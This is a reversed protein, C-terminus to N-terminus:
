HIKPKVPDGAVINRSIIVKDNSSLGSTVEIFNGQVQGLTVTKAIAMNNDSVFVIAKDQTQHISDIPVYPTSTSTYSYGVPIEIDVFGKDTLLSQVEQPITFIIAYLQGQVAEKSIYVPTVEYKQNDIIMNSADLKSVGGAINQPVYAVATQSKGLSSVTFLLSGPTVQQAARVHVKEITGTFPSTPFSLSENISALKAQLNAADLNLKLIKEQLDLQKLTVDKQLNSIQSPAKDNNTSFELNRLSSKAQNNASLFQSKLQKTQLIAADNTGGVNSTELQSLNNELSTLISDNTSILSKTEDISKEGISRLDDSNSDNKHAIDRQTTIIELQSDFNIKASQAQNNALQRQVSAANAGQYNTSLSILTQGKSVKQGNVVNIKNVIGATQATIQIVGEKEVQASVSIKPAGGISYTDVVVPERTKEEEAPKPKAIINGIIILGLLMLLTILFSQVPRKEVKNTINIYVKKSKAKISASGSKFQRFFSAANRAKKKM